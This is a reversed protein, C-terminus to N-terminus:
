QSASLREVLAEKNGKPDVGMSRAIKRLDDLKMAAFNPPAAAAQQMEEEQDVVVDPPSQEEDEEEEIVCAPQDVNANGDVLLEPNTNASEDDNDDDDGISVGIIQHLMSRIESESVYSSGSDLNPSPRAPPSAMATKVKADLAKWIADHQTIGRDLEQVDRSLKAFEQELKSQRKRAGAIERHICFMGVISCILVGLVICQLRASPNFPCKM